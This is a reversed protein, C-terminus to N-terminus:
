RSRDRPRRECCSFPVPETTQTAAWNGVRGHGLDRNNVVLDLETIV